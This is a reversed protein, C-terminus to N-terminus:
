IYKPTKIRHSTVVRKLIFSYNDKFSTRYQGHCTEVRSVLRCCKGNGTLKFRLDEFKM